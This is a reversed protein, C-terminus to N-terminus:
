RGIVQKIKEVGRRTMETTGVGPHNEYEGVIYGEYDSDRIIGVVDDYPISAEEGNEYLYHFKGHFHVCHKMIRKLCEFDPEKSFQVFGYMGSFAGFVAGNAGAAALRAQAEEMPVGDYRMQAAMELLELPAGNALAQDWYPKNPKTAFCGFDLVDYMRAYPELRELVNPGMLYQARMVHCGLRHASQIDIIGQNVMEDETLNRDPLMGRDCNAGYSVPAIGTEDALRHVEDLFEDSIYPYSPIMQTAVVEYGECGIKAAERVIDAFSLRGTAYENTWCYLTAGVKINSM